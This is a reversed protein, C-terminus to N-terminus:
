PSRRSALYRDVVSRDGTVTLDDASMRNWLVLLVDAAPGAMAAAAASAGDGVEAPGGDPPHMTWASSADTTAIVLPATLDPLRGRRAMRPGFMRLLEDIGDAAVTPEIGAAAEHVSNGAARAADVGHVTVEHAQRRSWFGFREDAGSFNWCTGDADVDALVQQLPAAEARYWGALATASGRDEARAQAPEYEQAATTRLVRTAWRHIVVLHEVLGVTTWGPCSPVTADPDAAAVHMAFSEVAHDLWQRHTAHDDTTTM